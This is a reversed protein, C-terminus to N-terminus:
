IAEDDNVMRSVIRAAIRNRPPKTRRKPTKRPYNNFGPHCRQIAPLMETYLSMKDLLMAAGYSEALDKAESDNSFSVAVTCVTGLQAKVLATTFDRKEPLHLDLLLVDPKVENLMQMTEAFTSAEGVVDINGEEQLMKRIAARMVDSDDAILVKCV